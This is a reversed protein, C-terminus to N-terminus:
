IKAHVPLKGGLVLHKQKPCTVDKNAAVNRSRDKIAELKLSALTQSGPSDAQLNGTSQLYSRGCETSPGALPPSAIIEPESHEFSYRISAFDDDSRLAGSTDSYGGSKYGAGSTGSSSGVSSKMSAIRKPAKKSSSKPDHRLESAREILNELLDYSAHATEDAVIRLVSSIQDQSFGITHHGQILNVTENQAFYEKIM